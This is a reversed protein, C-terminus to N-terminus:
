LLFLMHFKSSNECVHKRRKSRKYHAFLLTYTGVYIGMDRSLMVLDEHPSRVKSSIGKLKLM